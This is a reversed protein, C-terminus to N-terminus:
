GVLREPYTGAQQYILRLHVGLSFFSVSIRDSRQGGVSRVSDIREKFKKGEKTDLALSCAAEYSLVGEDVFM